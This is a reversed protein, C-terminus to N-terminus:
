EWNGAIMDDPSLETLARQPGDFRVSAHPVLEWPSNTYPIAVLM